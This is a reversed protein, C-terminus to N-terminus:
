RHAETGDRYRGDAVKVCNESGDKGRALLWDFDAIFSHHGPRKELGRLFRSRGVEQFVQRWFEEKPFIALYKKAKERRAPSATEVSPCEQPTEANYLTILGDPTGWTPPVIPPNIRKEERRKKATVVHGQRNRLRRMREASSDEQYKSWNEWTVTVPADRGDTVGDDRSIQCNPFRGLVELLEEYTVVQLDACLTRAPAEIRMVGRRGHVKLHAGFKAWRGFDRIDLNGLHPDSLASYWLKFWRGQDGM